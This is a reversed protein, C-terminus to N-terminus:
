HREGLWARFDADEKTPHLEKNLAAELEAVRQQVAALQAAQKDEVRRLNWMEIAKAESVDNPGAASCNGCVVRHEMHSNGGPDAVPWNDICIRNSACFPCPKLENM